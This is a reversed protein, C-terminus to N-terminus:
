EGGDDYDCWDDYLALEEEAEETQRAVCPGCVRYVPGSMGEDYDRTDRLTSVHAGCWDCVGTRAEDSRHYARMEELCEQCADIM